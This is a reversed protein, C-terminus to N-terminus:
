RNFIGIFQKIKSIFQQKFLSKENNYVPKEIAKYQSNKALWVNFLREGLFGCARLNYNDRNTYNFRKDALLLINFLWDCYQDFIKKSTIFMNCPYYYKRNMVKEFSELYDPYKKSIIERCINLDSEIHNKKFHELITLPTTYAKEPIIIDYKELIEEITDIPLVKNYDSIIKNDYFFRRYHTSGLIDADLNKWIWYVGTLECFTFNLDSINNGINDKFDVGNLNNKNAGVLLNYYGDKKIISKKNSCAMFIITKMSRFNKSADKNMKNMFKLHIAKHIRLYIKKSLIIYLRRQTRFMFSRRVEKLPEDKWLSKSKYELFIEKQPHINDKEWPRGTMAGMCHLIKPHDYYKKVEDYSYYYEPKLDYLYFTENIGYIYFGSNFNYTIDLKLYQKRFLVNLIDQDGLYYKNRVNKLHNEIQEECKEEIWKKQNFITVGGNYYNDNRPIGIYDKYCNQTSDCVGACLYNDMKLNCLEKISDTIITDGDISLIYNGKIKLDNIAFIRLYTSYNGGYPTVDLSKIKKIIKTTDVFTVINKYLSCLQRIKEVNDEKINNNLIYIDFDVDKNNMFLSTMSIGTLSAYANDSQYLVNLHKKM